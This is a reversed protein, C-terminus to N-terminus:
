HLKQITVQMSIEIPTYFGLRKRPRNNLNDQVIQIRDESLSEFDAGKPFFQRILGNTNENAGREWSHYPHAFYVDVKLEKAIREHLAFEKGNDATITHIMDKFPLM